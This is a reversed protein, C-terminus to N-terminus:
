CFIVEGKYKSGLWELSLGDDGKMDSFDLEGEVYLNAVRNEIIARTCYVCPLANTHLSQTIRFSSIRPTQNLDVVILPTYDSLTVRKERRERESKVGVKVKDKGVLEFSLEQTEQFTRSRASDPEHRIMQAITLGVSYLRDSNRGTVPNWLLRDDVIATKLELTSRRQGGHLHYFSYSIAPILKQDVSDIMAARKLNLLYVADNEELPMLMAVNVAEQNRLMANQEGCASICNKRGLAPPADLGLAEYAGRNLRNMLCGRFGDQGLNLGVGMAQAVQRAGAAAIESFDVCSPSHRFPVAGRESILASSAEEILAWEQGNERTVPVGGVVLCEAIMNTLMGMQLEPDIATFEHGGNTGVAGINLHNEKRGDAKFYVRGIATAEVTRYNCTSSVSTVGRVAEELQNALFIFNTDFSAGEGQSLPDFRREQYLAELERTNIHSRPPNSRLFDALGRFYLDVSDPQLRPDNHYSILSKWASLREVYDIGARYNPKDVVVPYVVEHNPM